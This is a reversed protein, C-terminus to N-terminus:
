IERGGKQQDQREGSGVQREEDFANEEDDLGPGAALGEGPPLQFQDHQEENDAADRQQEFALEAVDVPLVPLEVRDVGRQEDHEGIGAENVAVQPPMTACLPMAAMSSSSRPSYTASHSTSLSAPMASLPPCPLSM